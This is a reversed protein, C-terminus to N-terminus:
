NSGDTRRRAAVKRAHERCAARKKETYTEDFGYLTRYKKLMVEKMKAKHRERYKPDNQYRNRQYDKKAEKREEETAPPEM